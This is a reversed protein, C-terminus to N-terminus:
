IHILEKGKLVFFLNQFEHVYKIKVSPPIEMYNCIIFRIENKALLISYDGLKYNNIDVKEFGFKLLWEESLPIPFFCESDGEYSDTFIKNGVIGAVILPNDNTNLPYKVYNGIRLENAEM